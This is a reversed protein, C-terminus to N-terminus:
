SNAIEVKSLLEPDNNRVNGVQRGVPYYRLTGPLGPALLVGLEEEDDASPDLWVELAGSELIAPMRDHIAAVDSTADATIITCTRLWEGDDGPKRWPEWLGAFAMPAGDARQFYYPQRRNSPGKQWEYYGDAVIAIRRSRFASRFAPRSVVTEARANFLRNGISPDPAWSPVLGWRYGRLVRDGEPLSVLGIVNDTPAVNYSPVYAQELAPAVTAGLYEAVQEVPQALVYRGCM